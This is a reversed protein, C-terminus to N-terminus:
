KGEDLIRFSYLGTRAVRKFSRDGITLGNTCYYHLEMWIGVLRVRFFEGGGSGSPNVLTVQFLKEALFPFFEVKGVLQKRTWYMQM